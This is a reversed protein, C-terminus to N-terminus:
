KVDLDPSTVVDDDDLEDAHSGAISDESSSRKVNRGSSRFSICRFRLFRDVASIVVRKESIYTNISDICNVCIFIKVM